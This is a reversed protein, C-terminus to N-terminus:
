ESGIGCLKLGDFILPGISVRAGPISPNPLWIPEIGRINLDPHLRELLAIASGNVPYAYGGAEVWVMNFECHLEAKDVMLPWESGYDSKTITSGDRGDDAKTVTSEDRGNDVKTKDGCALVLSVLLLVFLCAKM